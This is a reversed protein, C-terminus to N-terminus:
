MTTASCYVVVTRILQVQIVDNDHSVINRRLCSGFLNKSENMRTLDVGEPFKTESDKLGLVEWCLRAAGCGALAARADSRRAEGHLAGLKAEMATVKSKTKRM